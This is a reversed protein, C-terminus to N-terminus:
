SEEGSGGSSEEVGKKGKKANAKAFMDKVTAGGKKKGGKGAKEKKKEERRDVQDQVREREARGQEQLEEDLAKFEESEADMGVLSELLKIERAWVGKDEIKKKSDKPDPADIPTELVMPLGQLRPDNM